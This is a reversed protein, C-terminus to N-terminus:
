ALSRHVQAPPRLYIPHPSQVHMRVVTRPPQRRTGTGASSVALSTFGLGALEAM